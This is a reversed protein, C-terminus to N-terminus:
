ISLIMKKLVMFPHDFAEMADSKNNKSNIALIVGREKMELIKQQFDYFRAGENYNSLIIGDLGHEGIIGGWLTNDM